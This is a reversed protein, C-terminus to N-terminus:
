DLAINLLTDKGLKRLKWEYRRDGILDKPDVTFSSKVSATM